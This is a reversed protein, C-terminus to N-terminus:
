RPALWELPDVAKGEKRVEFHLSDSSFGVIDGRQVKDGVAAKIDSLKSYISHLREGHDVIVTRGYGMFRDAFSVRGAEAARVPVGAACSIDIGLSNTKTGYLPNVRTGYSQVVKGTIPWGLRGQRADSSGAVVPVSRGAMTRHYRPSSSYLSACGALLVLVAFGGLGTAIAM